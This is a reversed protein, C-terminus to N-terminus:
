SNKQCYRIQNPYRGEILVVIAECVERYDDDTMPPQETRWGGHSLDNIFTFSKKDKPINKNIFERVSDENSNISEFKDITEIIHRISNATTHTPKAGKRAIQFVDLLHNIYPVTFNDNWEYLSSNKLLLVKDLINNSSLIRIFDSNHTLILHRVRDMKPFITKIDRIVGSLTYVYTFDMSSIPDDIIFFLRKYDEEKSIITHTDGLYYAFAVINKEGESLINKTQNKELTKANFVLRFTRDDLTYKGSFFCDLVTKITESVLKKKEVKQLSRKKEIEAQLAQEQKGYEVYQEQDKGYKDVWVNYSAKCINRRIERNEEGIRSKKVNIEKILNNNRAVQNNFTSILGEFTDVCVDNISVVVSIDNQKVELVERLSLLFQDLLGSDLEELSKSECSPIYETKYLNYRNAAESNKVKITAIDKRKSDVIQILAQIRKVTKAEEDTLFTNYQDILSLADTELKQNCFPCRGKSTSMFSLGKEIFAQKARIEDKFADGFRSLTFATGVITLIDQYQEHAFFFTDVENIDELFEPVAKVKDYDTIYDDFSKPLDQKLSAGNSLFVDASVFDQYEGLRKINSIPTIYKSIFSEIKSKLEDKLATRTNSIEKLRNNYESLDINTKGLIYGQVDDTHEYDLAKINNDVYDQNFTHYLYYPPSVSPVGAKTLNIVVDEISTGADDTIKFSFSATTKGLTILRDTDLKNPSNADLSEVPQELLSFMRSIFTKGSGNNAFFGFKLSNNEFENDLSVLPAINTCKLRVKIKKAM